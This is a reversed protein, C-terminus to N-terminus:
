PFLSPEPVSDLWAYFVDAGVYGTNSDVYDGKVDVIAQSPVASLKYRTLLHAFLKGDLRCLVLKKKKAEAKFKDTNLVEKLLAKWPDSKASTFDIFINRHTAAAVKEAEELSLYWKSAIVDELQVEKASSPPTFTFLDDAATGNMELTRTRVLITNSELGRKNFFEAQRAVKDGPDLFYTVTTDGRPDMQSEVADYTKDGRTVTGLDRAADTNYANPDFFGSWTRLPETTFLGKLLQPTQLQRYYTKAAKDYTVVDKGNAVILESPTDIRALNPKKLAVAYDDRTGGIEQVLYDSKLTKAGNIASAFSSLLLNETTAAAMAVIGCVALFGISRRLKMM